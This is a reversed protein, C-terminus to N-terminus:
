GLLENTHQEILAEPAIHTLERAIIKGRCVWIAEGWGGTTFSPVGFLENTSHATLSDIDLIVLDLSNTELSKITKTFRKFGVLSPGSWVAVVFIIGRQIQEIQVEHFDEVVRFHEVPLACHKEIIPLIRSKM